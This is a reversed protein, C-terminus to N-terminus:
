DKYTIKNIFFVKRKLAVHPTEFNQVQQIGYSILFRGYWYELQHTETAYKRIRDADFKGKIEEESKPTVVQTGRVIKTFIKNDFSYLMVVNDGRLTHVHQDLTLSKINKTEFTNDWLLNGNRAIGLSVAHTYRYGDFAIDRQWNSTFNYQGFNTGPKNSTYSNSKYVPYFAEGLLMYHDRYPVFEHVALRYNFRVKKGKVRKRDIREQIRNQRPIRLYKFFNKLDAFNYYRVRYEGAPNVSAIFVGRSYEQNKGYVGAVVASDGEFKVMRGFLLHKDTPPHIITNKIAAGDASFNMVWLSLRKETDRMNVVVDITEDPNITLQNLEGLDNFFGPLLKSQGNVLSFHVAVPRYNYYGAIVLSKNSVEFFMPAFPIVNQIVSLQKSGSEADISFLLFNGFGLRPRFLFHAKTGYCKAYALSWQKSVSVSSVWHEQVASDLKILHFSDENGTLEVRKYIILGHEDWPLVKYDSDEDLAPLEYRATQIVQAHAALASLLCLVLIKSL